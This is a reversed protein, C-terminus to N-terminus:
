HTYANAESTAQNAQDVRRQERELQAVAGREGVKVRGDAAVVGVQVARQSRNQGHQAPSVDVFTVHERVTVLYRQQRGGRTASVDWFSLFSCHSNCLWDLGLLCAPGNEDIAERVAQETRVDLHEPRDGVATV